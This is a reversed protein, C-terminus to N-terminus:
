FVSHSIYQLCHFVELRQYKVDASFLKAKETPAKTATPKAGNVKASQKAAQRDQKAYELALAGLLSVSGENISRQVVEDRRETQASAVEHSISFQYVLYGIFLAFAVIFGCLAWYKEFHAVEAITYDEDLLGPVQLFLYTFATGIMIYGGVYVYQNLQVGTNTLSSIFSHSLLKPRGKYNPKGDIITVRGGFVSLFWPITLLMITSGALTGVGVDLQSQADPGMGSFLVICGDPVAGLVPLVVSGIVGSWSPVLLLLESGDSILNSSFMLIYGYCFLLFILQVFGAVNQPLTEVNIFFNELSM